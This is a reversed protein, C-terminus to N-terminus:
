PVCLLKKVVDQLQVSQVKSHLEEITSRLSNLLIVFKKVQVRVIHALAYAFTDASAARAELNNHALTLRMSHSRIGCFADQSCVTRVHDKKGRHLKSMDSALDRLAEAAQVVRSTRSPEPSPEDDFDSEGAAAPHTADLAPQSALRPRLARAQNGAGGDHASVSENGVGGVLVGPARGLARPQVSAPGEPWRGTVQGPRAVGSTARTSTQVSGLRAQLNHAGRGNSSPMQTPPAAAPQRQPAVRQATVSNPKPTPLVGIMADLRGALPASDAAGQMTSSTVCAIHLSRM